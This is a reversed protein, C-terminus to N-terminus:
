ASQGVRCGVLADSIIVNLKMGNRSKGDAELFAMSARSGQLDGTDTENRQQM